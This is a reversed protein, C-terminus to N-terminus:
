PVNDREHASRLSRYFCLLWAFLRLLVRRELTVWRFRKSKNRERVVWPRIMCRRNKRKREVGPVTGVPTPGKDVNGRSRFSRTAVATRGTLSPTSDTISWGCSTWVLLGLTPTEADVLPGPYELMTRLLLWYVKRVVVSTTRELTMWKYMNSHPLDSFRNSLKKNFKYCYLNLRSVSLRGNVTFRKTGEFTQWHM